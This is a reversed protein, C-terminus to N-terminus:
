VLYLLSSFLFVIFIRCFLLTLLLTSLRSLGTVLATMEELSIQGFIRVVILIESFLPNLILTFSSGFTVLSINGTGPNNPAYVNLLQFSVNDKCLKVALVRGALDTKHDSLTVSSDPHILVAVGASRKSGPSWVAQGGWEKEWTKGQWLDALHREQLVFIYIRLSRLAEFVKVRKHHEAVGNVNISALMVAMIFIFLHPTFINLLFNSLFTRTRAGLLKASNEFNLM